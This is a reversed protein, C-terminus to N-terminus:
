EEKLDKLCDKCTIKKEDETGEFQPHDFSLQEARGWCWPLGDVPYIYHVVTM